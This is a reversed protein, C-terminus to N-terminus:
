SKDREVSIGDYKISIQPYHIYYKFYPTKNQKFLEYIYYDQYTRYLKYNVFFDSKNAPYCAEIVVSHGDSKSISVIEYCKCREGIIIEDEIRKKYIRELSLESCSSTDTDSNYTNYYIAGDKAKYLQFDLLGNLHKRKMDGNRKYDIILTDGYREVYYDYINKDNNNSVITTKYTVKGTFTSKCSSISLIIILIYFLNIKM